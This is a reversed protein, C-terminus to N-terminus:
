RTSVFSQNHADHLHGALIGVVSESATVNRWADLLETNVNWTSWPSRPNATGTDIPPNPSKAAYRGQALYYPDDLEPIHTVILIKKGAQRGEEVLGRFMEFQVSQLDPNDQSGNENNKFSYSPFGIMRYPTGAIDASCTSAPGGNAAYCRTLNHLQVNSKTEDIRKQVDDFFLNFYALGEPAASELPLDLLKAVNRIEAQRKTKDVADDLCDKVTRKSIDKKSAETTLVLCPDVGFDGTILLFAPAAGEPLMPIQHFMDSLAKEDLEQQTEMVRRANESADRPSLYIHPDTAHVFWVSRDGCDCVESGCAAPFFCLLLAASALLISSLSKMSVM